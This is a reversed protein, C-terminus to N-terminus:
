NPASYSAAARVASQAQLLHNIRRMAPRSRHPCCCTHIIRTKERESDGKQTLCTNLRKECALDNKGRRTYSYFVVYNWLSMLYPPGLVAQLKSVLLKQHCCDVAACWCNSFALHETNLNHEPSAQKSLSGPGTLLCSHPIIVGLPSCRKNGHSLMFESITSTGCPHSHVRQCHGTLKLENYKGQSSPPFSCIPWYIVIFM